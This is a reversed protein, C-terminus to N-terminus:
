AAAETATATSTAAATATATASRGRAYMWLGACDALLAAAVGLHATVPVADLFTMVSLLGLAIQVVALVPAAIALAKM